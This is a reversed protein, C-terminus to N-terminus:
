KKDLWQLIVANLGLDSFASVFAESPNRVILGGGLKSLMLASAVLVQACPTTLREVSSADVIVGPDKAMAEALGDKLPTAAALDLDASLKIAPSKGTPDM